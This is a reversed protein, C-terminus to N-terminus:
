PCEDNNTKNYNMNNKFHHRLQVGRDLRLILASILVTIIIKREWHRMHSSAANLSCGGVRATIVARCQPYTLHCRGGGAYWIIISVSTFSVTAQCRSIVAFSTTWGPPSSLSHSTSLPSFSLFHSFISKLNIILECQAGDTNKQKWNRRRLRSSLNEELHWVPESTRPTFVTYYDLSQTPPIM